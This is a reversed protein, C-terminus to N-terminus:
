AHAQHLLRRLPLLLEVLETVAALDAMVAAVRDDQISMLNTRTNRQDVISIWGFQCALQTSDWLRLVDDLLDPREHLRDADAVGLYTEAHFCQGNMEKGLV